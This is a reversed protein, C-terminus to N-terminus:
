IHDQNKSQGSSIAKRELAMRALAHIAVWVAISTQIAEREEELLRNLPQM